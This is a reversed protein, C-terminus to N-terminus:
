GATGGAIALKMGNNLFEMGHFGRGVLMPSHDTSLATNFNVSFFRDSLLGGGAPNVCKGGSYFVDDTGPRKAGAHKSCSYPMNPGATAAVPASRALTM